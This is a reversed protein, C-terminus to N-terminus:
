TDSFRWQTRARITARTRRHGGADRREGNFLLCDSGGSLLICSATYVVDHDLAARSSGYAAYSTLHMVALHAAVVALMGLAAVFSRAGRRALLCADGARSPLVLHASGRDAFSTLNTILRARQGRAPMWGRGLRSRHLVSRAFLLVVSTIM